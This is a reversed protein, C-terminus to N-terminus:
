SSPRPHQLDTRWTTQRWGMWALSRPGLIDVRSGTMEASSLVSISQLVVLDAFLNRIALPMLAVSPEPGADPRLGHTQDFKKSSIGANEDLKQIGYMDHEGAASTSTSSDANRENRVDPGGIRGKAM